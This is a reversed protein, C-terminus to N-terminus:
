CNTKAFKIIRSFAAKGGGPESTMEAAGGRGTKLKGLERFPNTAAYEEEDDGNCFLTTGLNYEDRRLITLPLNKESEGNQDDRRSYMM